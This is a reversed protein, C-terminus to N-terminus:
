PPAIYDVAAPRDHENNGQKREGVGPNTVTITFTTNSDPCIREPNAIKDVVIQPGPPACVLQHIDEGLGDSINGSFIRVAYAAPLTLGEIAVELDTGNFAFVKNSFSAGTVTITNDRLEITIEPAGVCDTNLEWKYSDDFGVGTEDDFTAQACKTNPDGNGDPDGILGATRIGLYLTKVDRDYALVDLVQDFGNVYYNDVIPACPVIKPDFIRIDKAPDQEVFSCGNAPSPVSGAYNIMDQLNGDIVVPVGLSVDRISFRDAAAGDRVVQAQAFTAGVFTLLLALAFTLHTAAATICSRSAARARPNASTMQIRGGTFILLKSSGM